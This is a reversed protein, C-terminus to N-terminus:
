ATERWSKKRLRHAQPRTWRGSDGQRAIEESRRAVRVIFTDQRHCLAKEYIRAMTIEAQDALPHLDIGSGSGSCSNSNGTANVSSCDASTLERTLLTRHRCCMWTWLHYLQSVSFNDHRWGEDKREETAPRLHTSTRFPISRVQLLKTVIISRTCNNGLNSLWHQM